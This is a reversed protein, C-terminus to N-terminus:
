QVPLQKRSAPNLATQTKQKQCPSSAWMQERPEEVKSSQVESSTAQLSLYFIVKIRVALASKHKALAVVPTSCKELVDSLIVLTEAM